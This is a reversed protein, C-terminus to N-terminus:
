LKKRAKIYAFFGIPMFSTLASEINQLITFFTRLIRIARSNFSNDKFSLQELTFEPSKGMLQLIPYYFIDVLQAFYFWDLALSEIKFGPKRVLELFSKKSYAFNHGCREKRHSRFRRFRTLQGHITLSEAELPGTVLYIGGRKLVRYVESVAKAPNLTHDLVSNMIVVDFQNSKVPLETADGVLFKIDKPNKNAIQIANRSIDCGSFEFNTFIRKLAKTKAGAGCGVDLIKLKRQSGSLKKLEKVFFLLFGRNPNSLSLSAERKDFIVKENDYKKQGNNKM